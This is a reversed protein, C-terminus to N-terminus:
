SRAKRTTLFIAAVGIGLGALGGIFRSLHDPLPLLAIGFGALIVLLLAGIWITLERDMM